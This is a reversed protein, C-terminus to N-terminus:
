TRQDVIHMITRCVADLAHKIDDNNFRLVLIGLSEFYATRATDYEPATGLYHQEGDLEIVLRAKPCYFDVIFNGIVRQRNFRIPYTALFQYWLKKEESTANTRLERAYKTLAPNKPLYEKRM